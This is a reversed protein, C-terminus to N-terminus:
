PDEMKQPFTNHKICYKATLCLFWLSLLTTVTIELNTFIPRIQNDWHCTKFVEINDQSDCNHKSRLEFLLWIMLKTALHTELVTETTTETVDRHTQEGVETRTIHVSFNCLRHSLIKQLCSHTSEERASRAKMVLDSPSDSGFISNLHPDLAIWKNNWHVIFKVCISYQEVM